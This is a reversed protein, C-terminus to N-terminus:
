STSAFPEAHMRRLDGALFGCSPRSEFKLSDSALLTINCRIRRLGAFVSVVERCYVGVLHECKSTALERKQDRDVM